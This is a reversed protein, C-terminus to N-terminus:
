SADALVGILRNMADVQAAETPEAASVPVTIRLWVQGGDSLVVRSNVSRNGDRAFVLRM